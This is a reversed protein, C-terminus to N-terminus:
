YLVARRCRCRTKGAKRLCWRSSSCRSSSPSSSAAAAAAAVAAAARAAYREVGTRRRDSIRGKEAEEADEEDVWRGNIVM